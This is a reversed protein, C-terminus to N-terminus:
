EYIGKDHISLHPHRASELSRHPAWLAGRHDMWGEVCWQVEQVIVLRLNVVSNFNFFFSFLSAKKLITLNKPAHDHLKACLQTADLDQSREARRDNSHIWHAACPLTRCVDVGSGLMYNIKITYYKFLFFSLILGLGFRCSLNYIPLVLFARRKTHGVM